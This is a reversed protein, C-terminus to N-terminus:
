ASLTSRPPTVPTIIPGLWDTVNLNAQFASTSAELASSCSAFLDNVHNTPESFPTTIPKSKEYRQITKDLSLPDLNAQIQTEQLFDDIFRSDCRCLLQINHTNAIPGRASGQTDRKVRLNEKSSLQEFSTLVFSATVSITSLAGLASFVVSLMIQATHPPIKEHKLLSFGARGTRCLVELMLDPTPDLLLRSGYPSDDHSYRDYNMALTLANVIANCAHLRTSAPDILHEPTSDLYELTDALILSGMHYHTMLLLYNTQNEPSMTLYDRSCMALLRDFVDHFRRSEESVRQAVGEVPELKQHFVADCFQNLVGLYMTKCASAHQLVVVIIDPALPLPSGHLVRFSQDFIVTRQRIFDWVQKDATKGPLIVSPTQHILSSSTDCLVGLWFISDQLHQHKQDLVQLKAPMTYDVAGEARPVATTCQGLPRTEPHEFPSRLTVFHSLLTQHCLRSIGPDNHDIPRETLSFLLLTLISRYSPRTLASLVGKLANRWLQERFDQQHKQAKTNSGPHLTELASRVPLWRAAFAYIAHRLANDLVAQGDTRSKPDKPSTECASNHNLLGNADQHGGDLQLVIRSVFSKTGTTVDLYPCCSDGLWLAFRSEFLSIFIDWLMDHLMMAQARRSAMEELDFGTM